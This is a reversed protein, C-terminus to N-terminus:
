LHIALSTFFFSATSNATAPSQCSGIEDITKPRARSGGRRKDAILVRVKAGSSKGPKRKLNKILHGLAELFIVLVYYENETRGRLRATCQNVDEENTGAGAASQAIHAAGNRGSHDV